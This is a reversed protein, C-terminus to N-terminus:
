KIPLRESFIFLGSGGSCRLATKQGKIVRDFNPKSVLSNPLRFYFAYDAGVRAHSYM